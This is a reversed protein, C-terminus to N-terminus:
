LGKRNKYIEIAKGYIEILLQYNREATYKAEFEARANKGMRIVEDENEYMWRVKEALDNANGPEFLLGTRGHEVIEAMAGLKSAILPKGCAFAEIITLGFTEYCESPMVLFKANQLINICDRHPILGMFEVNGLKYTEAINILQKRDPGEGIIKLSRKSLRRWAELLTKVGKEQGLRGIFVAYGNNSYEPKPPNALFNPKVTIKNAPFGAEIFKMRVFDTAAIFSIIKEKWTRLIRHVWIMMSVWGTMTYSKQFCRHKMGRWLTHNICEECIQGDRLMYIQPCIFRFDHLTQVIPVGEYYCAYYASPSILPFINHFHVVEPRKARIIKRIQRYSSPLWTTKWILNAKQWINFTAIEDNHRDYVLVRHGRSELLKREWNFVSDDGSPAGSRHKNHIILIKM